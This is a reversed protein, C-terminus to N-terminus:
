RYTAAHLIHGGRRPASSADGGFYRAFIEPPGLDEVESFGLSALQTHLESPEFYTVWSEGNAQVRAARRDHLARANPSLSEPPDGYDFVVHAGNRLGAILGLTSWVADKSLYPVVGLWTFFTRREADFGAAVLGDSLTDHEFDIPAFTLSAPVPIAAQALRERKWAQTAPHDVEFIRLREGFPCRYAFTDLGAGVIVLQSVGQEVAAALTDEAFRARVALFLRMRRSATDLDAERAIVQHNTWFAFPSRIPSSAGERWFRIRPM